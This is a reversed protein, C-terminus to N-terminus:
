RRTKQKHENALKALEPQEQRALSLARGYDKLGQEKMIENARKGLSVYAGEASTESSGADGIESFIKAAPIAELIKTFEQKMGENLKLYFDVLNGKMQTPMRVGIKENFVLTSVVESAQKTRLEEKAKKFEEFEGASIKVMGKEDATVTETKAGEEKVEESKEINPENAEVIKGDRIERIVGDACKVSAIRKSAFDAIQEATFGYNAKVEDVKEVKEEPEEAKEEAKAPQAESAKIKKLESEKAVMIENYSKAIEAEEPAPQWDPKVLFPEEFTYKEAGEDEKFNVQYYKVHAFDSWSYSDCDPDAVIILHDEYTGVVKYGFMQSKFVNVESNSFADAIENVEEELSQGANESAKKDKDEKVPEKQDKKAKKKEEDTMDEEDIAEAKEKKTEAAEVTEGAASEEPKTDTETKESVEETEKKTEEVKNDEDMTSDENLYITSGDDKSESARVAQLGKMLPFNTLAAAILVNDATHMNTEPDYYTPAFEPSLFKFIKNALKDEGIPTWEVLAWLEEGNKRTELKTIWGNAAGNDHDTDIPVGKRVSAKFNDVMEKLDDAIVSFSGQYNTDWHGVNLVNIWQPNEIKDSESARIAILRQYNKIM